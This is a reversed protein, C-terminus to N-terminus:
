TYDMTDDTDINALYNDEQFIDKTFDDEIEEEEILEADTPGIDSSLEDLVPIGASM